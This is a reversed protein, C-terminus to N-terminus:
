NRLLACYCYKSSLSVIRWQMHLLIFFYLFILFYVWSKSIVQSICYVNLNSSFISLMLLWPSYILIGILAGRSLAFM